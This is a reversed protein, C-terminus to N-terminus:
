KRAIVGISGSHDLYPSGMLDSWFNMGAFGSRTLEEYLKGKSFHHEWINYTTMKGNEEIILYQDLFAKAEPYDWTQFLELYPGPRWFGQSLCVDWHRHKKAESRSFETVVDFVFFGGPKLAHAVRRLLELRDPEALVGLDYYILSVADFVGDFDLTLYDKYIYEIDLGEQRAQLRAYDISNQSFDMGTVRCGRRSFRITYLGPGCGLDLIKSGPTLNLQSIIWAASKDITEPKRSALDTKPDLHTKLMQRAIYADQWFLPEGKADLEPKQVGAALAHLDIKQQTNQSNM